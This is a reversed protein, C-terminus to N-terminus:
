LVSPSDRVKRKKLLEEIEKKHEPHSVFDQDFYWLGPILELDGYYGRKVGFPYVRVGYPVVPSMIIGVMGNNEIYVQSPTLDLIPKPFLKKEPDLDGSHKYYTHNHEVKIEGSTVRKSIERCAELLAQHDTQYLLVPRRSEMRKIDLIVWLVDYGILATFAAVVFVIGGFLLWKNRRKM